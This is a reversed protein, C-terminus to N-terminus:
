GFVVAVGSITLIPPVCAMVIRVARPARYALLWQAIAIVIGGLIMASGLHDAPVDGCLSSDAACLSNDSHTEAFSVIIFPLLLLMAVSSLSPAQWWRTRSVSVATPDSIM